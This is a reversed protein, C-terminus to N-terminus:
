IDLITIKEQTFNRAILFVKNEDPHDLWHKMAEKVTPTMPRNIVDKRDVWYFEGEDCKPPTVENELEGFYHYHWSIEHEYKTVVIYRLKLNKIDSKSINAEELVERYCTEIMDIARPDKIDDKELHGGIGAWFGTAIKKHLGRKMLLVKNGCVLFAGATIRTTM